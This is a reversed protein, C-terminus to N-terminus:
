GSPGHFGFQDLDLKLIDIIETMLENIGDIEEQSPAGGTGVLDHGEIYPLAEALLEKLRKEIAM